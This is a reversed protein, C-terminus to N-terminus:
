NNIKDSFNRHKINCHQPLRLAAKSGNHMEERQKWYLCTLLRHGREEETASRGRTNGM